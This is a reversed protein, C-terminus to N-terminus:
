ANALSNRLAPSLTMMQELDPSKMDYCCDNSVMSTLSTMLWYIIPNRMTWKRKRKKRKRIPQSFPLWNHLLSIHQIYLPIMTISTGNTTYRLELIMVIYSNPISRLHLSTALHLALIWGVRCSPAQSKALQGSFM